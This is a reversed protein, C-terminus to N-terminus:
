IGISQEVSGRKVTPLTVRFVLAQTDVDQGYSSSYPKGLSIGNTTVFDNDAVTILFYDDPNAPDFAPALAFSEWKADILSSDADDGNHLGFRKLQDKDLYDVFATYTAPTISKDLVGGPSIPTSSDFKTGHIDTASTIDILDASKYSSKIEDSGNGDGDRALVLFQKDNLYIIESQGRTNDKKSQPLAVVWEGALTASGSPTVNWSLLRTHRSTSKDAGGDQITASQLLAYLTSGSPSSTLGEFGQNPSRGSDPNIVSTFNLSGGIRPLIASPPQITTLLDGDASLKYIYPGYEDSVWFTGDANLVLGEADLSLHSYSASPIPIEPDSGTKPRVGLGDLGSTPVRGRDYYLLTSRYTLAFTKKADAFSLKSAGYYPTLTFDIAHQRGQWDITKEVNYGRDPQTILTGQFVGSSSQRFTGRKIAIASGIGGITEGYSDKATAPIWGFAVLGKNVFTSGGFKVSTALSPDPSTPNSARETPLAHVNPSVCAVSAVAFFLTSRDLIKYLM